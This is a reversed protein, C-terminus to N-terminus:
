WDEGRGISALRAPIVKTVNCTDCCRHPWVDLPEPNNGRGKSGPTWEELHEGCLCCEQEWEEDEM